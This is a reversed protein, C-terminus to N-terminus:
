RIDQLFTRAEDAITGAMDYHVYHGTDLRMSKGVTVRSLYGSLAERWGPATAEQGDSIFFYMPTDVPVGSEAVAQANDELYDVERLMDSSYASRYFATLYAQRDEGTLDESQLVPFYNEVEADPMYRSLGTRSVAYMAYLQTKNPEPLVDVSEPTCPDLGVIASVEDPYRQAWYIAELGAMSHPFLVYPGQEGATQLAKRTEELVTDVDRPSRSTESWGYGSREVVAIRHEDVMRMWLPKFDITPSTTGHGSMFVLTLDGEGETYVHLEKGNVKVVSGSPHQENAEKRLQGRHNLTSAALLVAVVAIVVIVTIGLIKLVGM